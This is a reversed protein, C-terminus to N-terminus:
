PHVPIEMYTDTSSSTAATSTFSADRDHRPPTADPQGQIWAAPPAKYRAQPPPEDTAKPPPPNLPTARRHLSHLTTLERRRPSSRVRASPSAQNPRPQSLQNPCPLQHNPFPFRNTLHSKHTHSPLSHRRTQTQSTTLPPTTKKPSRPYHRPVHAVHHSRRHQPHKRQRSVVPLDPTKPTLPRTTPQPQRAPHLWRHNCTPRQPQTPQISM